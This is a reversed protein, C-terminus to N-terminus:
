PRELLLRELLIVMLRTLLGVLRGERLLVILLVLQQRTQLAMSATAM